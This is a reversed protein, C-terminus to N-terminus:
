RGVDNIADFSVWYHTTNNTSWDQYPTLWHSVVNCQLMTEWRSPGYQSSLHGISAPYPCKLAAQAPFSMKMAVEHCCHANGHCIWHVRWVFTESIPTCTVQHTKRSFLNRFICLISLNLRHAGTLRHARWACPPSIISVKRYSAHYIFWISEIESLIDHYEYIYIYKHINYTVWLTVSPWRQSTNLLTTKIYVSHVREYNYLM